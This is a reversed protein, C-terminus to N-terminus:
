VFLPRFNQHHTCMSSTDTRHPMNASTMAWNVKIERGMVLRKNMVLIARTAAQHEAFEIFAYPETTSQFIISNILYIITQDFICVEHILKCSQCLGIQTFLAM